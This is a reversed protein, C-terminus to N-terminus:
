KGSRGMARDLEDFVAREVLLSTIGKAITYDEGNHLVVALSKWVITATQAFEDTGFDDIQQATMFHKRGIGFLGGCVTLGDPSAEVVSRYFWLDFLVKAFMLAGIGFAIPIVVPADFHVMLWIFGIWFTFLLTLFLAVGWNRAATFVLRVGGGPLLSKLIGAERLLWDANPAAVSDATLSEDSQFSPQGQLSKFVPVEFQSHYNMGSLRASVELRWETECPAGPRSTEPCERPIAFLVPVETEFEIKGQRPKLILREDQWVVTTRKGGNCDKDEEICSLKIRFGKDPRVKRPIRVVGALQGGLMGPVTTLELVSDGFKLNRVVYYLLTTVLIVDIVPFVLTTWKWGTNVQQLIEPLKTVLPLTAVVWYTVGIASRAVAAEKTARVRGSGWDSRLLWPRDTPTQDGARDPMEKLSMLTNIMIGLGISGFLVACATIGALQDWPLERDALAAYTPLVGLTLFPMAFLVSCGARLPSSRKASMAVM